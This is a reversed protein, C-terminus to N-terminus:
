GPLGVWFAKMSDKLDRTRTSNSAGFGIESSRRPVHLLRRSAGITWCRGGVCRAGCFVLEVAIVPRMVPGLGSLHLHAQLHRAVLCIGGSNEPPMNHSRNWFPSVSFRAIKRHSCGQLIHLWRPTTGAPHHKNRRIYGSCSCRVALRNFEGTVAINLLAPSTSLVTYIVQRPM